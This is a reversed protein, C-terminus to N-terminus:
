FNSTVYVEDTNTMEVDGSLDEFQDTIQDIPACDRIEGFLRWVESQTFEQNAQLEHPLADISCSAELFSILFLFFKPASTGHLM